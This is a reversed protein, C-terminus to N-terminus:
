RESFAREVIQRQLEQEHQLKSQIKALQESEGFTNYRDYADQIHNYLPLGGSNRPTAPIPICRTKDENLTTYDRCTDDLNLGVSYDLMCGQQLKFTSTVNKSLCMKEWATLNEVEFAHDTLKLSNTEHTPISAWFEKDYFVNDGHYVPTEGFYSQMSRHDDDARDDGVLAMLKIQGLCDEIAIKLEGANGAIHGARPISSDFSFESYTVSREDQIGRSQDLGQQCEALFQLQYFYDLQDKTIPDKIEFRIIDAEYKKLIESKNEPIFNSEIPPIVEPLCENTVPNYGFECEPNFIENQALNEEYWQKVEDATFRYTIQFEFMNDTMTIIQKRVDTQKVNDPIPFSVVAEFTEGYALHAGYSFVAIVVIALLIWFLNSLTTDKEWLRSM